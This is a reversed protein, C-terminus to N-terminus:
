PHSNKGTTLDIISIENIMRNLAEDERDKILFLYNDFIRITDIERCKKSCIIQRTELNFIDHTHSGKRYGHLIFFRDNVEIASYAKKFKTSFILNYQFNKLDFFGFNAFEKYPDFLYLKKKDTLLKLRGNMVNCQCSIVSGKPNESFSIQMLSCKTENERKMLWLTDNSFILDAWDGRKFSRIVEGELNKVYINDRTHSIFINGMMGIIKEENYRYVNHNRLDIIISGGNKEAALHLLLFNEIKEVHGFDDLPDVFGKINYIQEDYNGKSLNNKLTERKKEYITKGRDFFAKCTLRFTSVEPYINHSLIEEYIEQPFSDWLSWLSSPYEKIKNVKM